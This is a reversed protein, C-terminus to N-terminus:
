ASLISFAKRAEDETSSQSRRTLSYTTTSRIAEGTRLTTLPSLTELEIYPIPDPNTYIETHCGLDPYEGAESAAEIKVVDEKGVWLLTNAELGIKIKQTSHRKLSLLRGARQVSEPRTGMQQVFGDRFAPSEPLLAYVCEADCMQTIVWIGTRVPSGSVKRFETSIQLVPLDSCLDIHRIIQIGYHPDVPSTIAISGDLFASQYALSDFAAPPPWARGTLREWESQPAPWAKDGGFNRWGEEVVMQQDDNSEDVWFVSRGAGAWEFAIVRGVVPVVIAEVIGNSIRLSNPWSRHSVEEVKIPSDGV